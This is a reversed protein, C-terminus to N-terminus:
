FFFILFNDKILIQIICLKDSLDIIQIIKYHPSTEVKYIMLIVIKYWTKIYM